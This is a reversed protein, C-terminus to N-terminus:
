RRGLRWEAHEHVADPETIVHWTPSPLDIAYELKSNTFVEQAVVLLCASCLVVFGAIVRRM